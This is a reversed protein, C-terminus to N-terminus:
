FYEDYEEYAVEDDSAHEYEENYPAVTQLYIRLWREHDYDSVEEDGFRPSQRPKFTYRMDELLNDMRYVLKRKIKALEYVEGDLDDNTRVCDCWNDRNSYDMYILMRDLKNAQRRKFMDLVDEFLDRPLAKYVTKMDM